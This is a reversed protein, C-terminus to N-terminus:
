RTRMPMIVYRADLRDFTVHIPNLPGSCMVEVGGSRSDPNILKAIKASDAMYGANVGVFPVTEAYGHSTPVTVVQRVPAFKEKERDRTFVTGGIGVRMTEADRDELEITISDPGGKKCADSLAKGLTKIDVGRFVIESGDLTQDCETVVYTVFGTFARHGDTGSIRALGKEFQMAVGAIHPRTSDKSVVLSASLFLAAFDQTNFTLLM